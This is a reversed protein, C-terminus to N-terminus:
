SGILRRLSALSGGRPPPEVAGFRRERSQFDAVAEFLDSKRFDPWLVPTVWLEAYALQWLLYNSIRLEGSTRIMLDPDPLGATYLAGEIRAEDIEDPRLRGAEIERALTRVADVMESRGSYSLAVQFVLGTNEETERRARELAERVRPPLDQLRGIPRFRINKERLTRLEGEIYERLLRMLTNVEAPPRKWNERSFAYLTLVELGLRASSELVERVAAIGARHGAVRPLGRRRAWRGNGDMIVAVHRPLRLFDIRALADPAPKAGPVGPGRPQADGQM